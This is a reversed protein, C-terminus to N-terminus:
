YDTSLLFSVPAALSRLAPVAGNLHARTAAQSIGVAKILAM